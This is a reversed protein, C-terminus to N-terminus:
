GILVLTNKELIDSHRMEKNKMVKLRDRHVYKTHCEKGNYCMSIHVKRNTKEDYLSFSDEYRNGQYQKHV